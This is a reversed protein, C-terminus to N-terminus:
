TLIDMTSYTKKIKKNQMIDERKLLEDQPKLKETECCSCYKYCKNIHEMNFIDGIFHTCFNRDKKCKDKKM